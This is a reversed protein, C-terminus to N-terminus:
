AAKEVDLKVEAGQPPKTIGVMAMYGVPLPKTEGEVNDILPETDVSEDVNATYSALGLKQKLIALQEKTMISSAFLVADFVGDRRELKEAELKRNKEHLNKIQGSMLEIASKHVDNLSLDVGSLIVERREAIRVDVYDEMAQEISVDRPDFSIKLQGDRWQGQIQDILRARETEFLSPEYVSTRAVDLIRAEILPRATDTWVPGIPEKFRLMRKDTYIGLGEAETM